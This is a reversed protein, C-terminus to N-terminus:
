CSCDTCGCTNCADKYFFFTRDSRNGIDFDGEMAIVSNHTYREERHGAERFADAHQNIKPILRIWNNKISELMDISPMNARTQAAGMYWCKEQEIKEFLYPAIKGQGISIFALKWRIYWSVAERFKIDDPILPYGTKNDIPIAQYSIKILGNKFSTNIFNDNVTYTLDSNCNRDDSKQCYWHHFSDTSYRMPYFITCKAEQELSCDAKVDKSSGHVTEIYHLDIPICARYAKVETVCVRNILHYPAGILEICEGAWNVMDDIDMPDSSGSDRYAKEIINEVTVYRGSWNM